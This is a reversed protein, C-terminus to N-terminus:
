QRKRESPTPNADVGQTGQNVSRDKQTSTDNANMPRDKTGKAGRSHKKTAKRKTGDAATSGSTSGSPSAETGGGPPNTASGGNASGANGQALAVSGAAALALALLHRSAANM